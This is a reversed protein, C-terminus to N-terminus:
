KNPKVALAGIIVQYHPDHYDMQEKKLEPLGMGYLFATAVLVNGFTEVVLNEAPFIESLVRNISNGNFSWLWYKGWDGHDIHSIGPVTLLLVGGPRLIRFCTKLADQYSYILHLTQTLIICDFSNDEIQPADSLDGIVTAQSNKDNIHLIESRLVKEGGFRETYENDGIELVTGKISDANKELFNEIYYRDVPGGRNYGFMNNFPLTRNLDGLDIKGQPPVFNNHIGIKYFFRLLFGPINRELFSKNPILPKIMLYKLYSLKRYKQLTKIDKSEYTKDTSENAFLLKEFILTCYWKKWLKLGNQFCKKEREDALFTKQRKLVTLAAELMKSLDNSMNQNHIFYTAILKTHHIIPYKRAIKLYLDYDECAALTTDFRLMDFVWRHYMVAAHMQIYNEELLRCYHNDKVVKTSNLHLDKEQYFVIHGGSVFAAEPNEGLYKLNSSIAEPLLWDDADLFVLYGGSSKEIGTNRAASLGQNSQFFYKIESFNQAISKTNDTSGDDIVIIEIEKHNQNLISEIARSLYQGHNYSTVIVSVLFSKTPKISSM